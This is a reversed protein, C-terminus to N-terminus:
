RSLLQVFRRAVPCVCHHIEALVVEGQWSEDTDNKRTATKVNGNEKCQIFIPDGTWENAGRRVRTIKLIRDAHLWKNEGRTEKTNM